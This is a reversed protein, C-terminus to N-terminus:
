SAWFWTQILRRSRGGRPIPTVSHWADDTRRLVLSHNAYPPFSHVVDTVDDSGLILFSGGASPDWNETLYMLHTVMKHPKDVHPKFSAGGDFSWFHTQMPISRVDFGTLETLAQRYEPSTLDEAVELWVDNLEGPEHPSSEGLNLLPRTRVNHRYWEDSERRGLSELLRRQAHCEFGDEPFAALLRDVDKFTGEYSAFPYPDTRMAADHIAGINLLNTM